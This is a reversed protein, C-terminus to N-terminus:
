GEHNAEIRWVTAAILVRGGVLELRAEIRHRGPSLHRSFDPCRFTRGGNDMRGVVDCAAGDAAVIRGDVAIEVAEVEAGPVYLHLMLDLDQTGGYRGDGPSVALPPAIRYVTGGLDVLYLEGDEDQGFSSINASSDLLLQPVAAPPPKPRPPAGQEVPPGLYEILRAAWIRGSCYDGYLYHGYLDGLESGRYRFGGTISCNGQSHTYELIPLTLAGTPNCGTPLGPQCNSSPNYCTSGEMRRWGYNECGRSAASQYDVEERSSQGVDAIFLDGSRADFSFRWPNRLGTAWIEDMGSIGVYPNDPPVAYPSGGDVDLRLIKGLLTNLSQANNNPDGAGGGDGMGIYLYGDPGFALQGGNHNSQNQPIQLITLDSDPDAVNPNGSVSYRVIMTDGNNDTYDLYFFGNSPYQPHFALGLLGREGCCSVLSSIDLFPTPLVQSGDFIRIVGPQELIFLRGSGDGAPTVFTPSSLGTAVPVLAIQQAALTVPFALLAAALAAVTALRRRPKATPLRNASM